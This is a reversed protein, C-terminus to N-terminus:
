HRLVSLPWGRSGCAERCSFLFDLCGKPAGVTETNKDGITGLTRVYHGHPHPSTADWGDVVVVLRKDM